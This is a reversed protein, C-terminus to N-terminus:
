TMIMKKLVTCLASADISVVQLSRDSPIHKYPSTEDKRSIEPIFQIFTLSM